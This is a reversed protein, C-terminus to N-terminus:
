YESSLMFLYTDLLDSYASVSHFFSPRRFKFTEGQFGVEV